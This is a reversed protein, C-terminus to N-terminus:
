TIQLTHITITIFSHAGFWGQRTGFSLFYFHSANGKGSSVRPNKIEPRSEKIPSPHLVGPTVTV